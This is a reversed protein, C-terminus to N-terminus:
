GEWLDCIAHAVDDLTMTRVYNEGNDTWLQFEGLRIKVIHYEGAKLVGPKADVLLRRVDNWETGEPIHIMRVRKTAM